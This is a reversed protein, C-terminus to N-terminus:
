VVDWLLASGIQLALAEEQPTPSICEQRRGRRRWEVDTAIGMFRVTCSTLAVFCKLSISSPRTSVTDISRRFGAYRSDAVEAGVSAGDAAAGGSGPEGAAPVATVVQEPHM